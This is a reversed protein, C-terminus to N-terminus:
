AAVWYPDLQWRAPIRFKNERMDMQEHTLRQYSTLRDGLLWEYCHGAHERFQLKTLVYHITEADGFVAFAWIIEPADKDCIVIAEGADLWRHVRPQHKNWYKIQYWKRLEPTADEPVQGVGYRSHWHSKLWLPVIAARDDTTAPRLTAM